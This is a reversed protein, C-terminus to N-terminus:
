LHITVEQWDLIRFWFIQEITFLEFVHQEIEFSNDAQSQNFLQFYQLTIIVTSFFVLISEISPM